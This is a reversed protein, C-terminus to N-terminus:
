LYLSVNSGANSSCRLHCIALLTTLLEAMTLREGHMKPKGHQHISEFRSADFLECRYNRNFRKIYVNQEPRGPQICDRCISRKVAWERAIKSCFEPGNESRIAGAQRRRM